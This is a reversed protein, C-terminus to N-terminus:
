QIQKKIENLILREFKEKQLKNESRSFDKNIRKWNGLNLGDNISVFAFTTKDKGAPRTWTFVIKNENKYYFYVGYWHAPEESQGDPLDWSGQNNITVKPVIYEPYEEKFKNIATKLQEESYNLEYEEAYPYSGPAFNCATIRSLIIVILFSKIFVMLTKM